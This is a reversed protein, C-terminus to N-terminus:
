SPMQPPDIPAAEVRNRGMRKAAYLAADAREVLRELLEGEQAVAVGISVTVQGITAQGASRTIRGQAVLSCIQRGLSTAGSLSTDPLLVAFEEGGLRAAVDRGKTHSRLIDAVARLVKDGLLHGHLDNILKFNDMDIMMLGTGALGGRQLELEVVAREFGRRNKLGTLADLLAESIARELDETLVTVKQTSAKLQTSLEVTMARMKGTDSRLDTVAGRVVEPVQVGALQQAHGALAADFDSVREGAVETNAATDKLIRYLEDRVGDYQRIDRALIHETYLRWVDEDTLPSKAALRAELTRSLAPNLGACHEYFLTYTSPNLAAAQRGMLGVALRLFEASQERDEGYRMLQRSKLGLTPSLIGPSRPIPWHQLYAGKAKM